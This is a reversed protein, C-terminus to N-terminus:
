FVTQNEFFILFDFINKTKRNVFGFFRSIIGDTRFIPTDGLPLADSESESMEPTRIGTGWGFLSPLM